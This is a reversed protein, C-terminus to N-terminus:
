SYVVINYTNVCSAETLKKKVHSTDSLLHYLGDAKIKKKLASNCKIKEIMKLFHFKSVVRFWDLFLYM